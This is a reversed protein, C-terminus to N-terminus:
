VGTWGGCRNGHAAEHVAKKDETGSAGRQRRHEGPEIRRRRLANLSHARFEARAEMFAGAAMVM